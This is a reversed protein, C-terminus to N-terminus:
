LLSYPYGKYKFWQSAANRMRKEFDLHSKFPWSKALAINFRKLSHLYQQEAHFFLDTWRPTPKPPVLIM